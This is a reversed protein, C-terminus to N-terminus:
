IRDAGPLRGGIAAALQPGISERSFRSRCASDAATRQSNVEADSLSWVRALAEALAEPDFPDCVLGLKGGDLIEFPGGHDPGILLLGRAAAEPFVMGFPEDLPTLAFVDSAAYVRELEVQPLYGHFRVAEGLGLRRALAILRRRHVGSGVVHLRSGPRRPIFKAFGRLVHDLNKVADLRSHALVQLGRSRDLGNRTRGPAGFGVIPYIVRADDRAFIRRLNDRTFESNAFILDVARTHERDFARLEGSGLGLRLGLRYRALRRAFFREVYDLEAHPSASVVREYLRPNAEALHLRRHPENCYWVRLRPTTASGLVACSPFNHAIAVDCDQLLAAVRPVSRRLRTVRGTLWDGLDPSPIRRLAIGRLARPWREDWGGSVVCVSSGSDRLYQAQSAILSEAGGVGKLKPHLFGVRMAHVVFLGGQPAPVTADGSCVPWVSM